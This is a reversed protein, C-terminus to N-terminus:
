KWNLNTDIKETSLLRKLTRVRFYKSSQFDEMTLHHKKYAEYLEVIGKRVNWQPKFDLTNKIKTFDVRYTREDQGTENLIRIRCGPVVKKVDEAIDKIQYNEENIGVNFAQCHIKDEPAELAAIFAASFDEIHVIPRWPTGDSMITIEGTLFAGATLNNVVLDLRNKPSVGYVTANRMFVPHFNVDALEALHKESNAKAKAYATVPNLEGDEKLPKDTRAIGYMSCSSAFIFRKIGAEKALGALKMTAHFNIDDTLAPNIEGLPDNSLGALHIVADVGEVDKRNVERIDKVIQKEPFAEPKFFDCEGFFNNDLGIVAHSRRKLMNTMIPGIYGNNGTVLVRM